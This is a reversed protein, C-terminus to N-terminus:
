CRFPDSLSQAWENGIPRMGNGSGGQRAPLNALTLGKERHGGLSAHEGTTQRSEADVYFAVLLNALDDEHQDDGDFVDCPVRAAAPRVLNSSSIEMTDAVVDPRHAVLGDRLIHDLLSDRLLSWNM